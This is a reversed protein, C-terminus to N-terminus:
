GCARARHPCRMAFSRNEGRGRPARERGPAQWPRPANIHQHGNIFVIERVRAPATAIRASVALPSACGWGKSRSGGSRNSAVGGEAAPRRDAPVFSRGTWRKGSGALRPFAAAFRPRQRGPTPSKRTKSPPGSWQPVDCSEFGTDITSAARRGWRPPGRLTSWRRNNPPSAAPIRSPRDDSRSTSRDPHGPRASARDRTRPM